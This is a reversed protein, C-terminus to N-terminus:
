RVQGMPVKPVPAPAAGSTNWLVTNGDWSGSAILGPEFLSFDLGVVFESHHGYRAVLADEIHSNWLCISMDSHLIPPFIFLWPRCCIIVPHRHRQHQHCARSIRYVRLYFVNCALLGHSKTLVRLNHCISLHPLPDNHQARFLWCNHNSQLFFFLRHQQM